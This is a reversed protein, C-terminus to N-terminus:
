TDAHVLRRSLHSELCPVPCRSPTQIAAQRHRHRLPHPACRARISDRLGIVVVSSMTRAVDQVASFRWFSCDVVLFGGFGAAVGSFKALIARGRAHGCGRREAPSGTWQLRRSSEGASPSWQTEARSGPCTTLRPPSRLPATWVLARQFRHQAARLPPPRASSRWDADETLTWARGSSHASRPIAQDARCESSKTNTSTKRNSSM